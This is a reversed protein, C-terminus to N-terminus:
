NSHDHIIRWGAASKRMVVSFLGTKAGGSAAPRELNYRGTVIALEATLVRASLETFKLKGMRSKDSYSRRYRALVAETGRTVESGVFTTEPSQEYCQVFAELSGTNWDGASKLIVSLIEKELEQAACSFGSFLLALSILVSRM